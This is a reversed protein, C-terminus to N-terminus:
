TVASRAVLPYMSFRLPMARPILGCDSNVPDSSRARRYALSSSSSCQCRCPRGVAAMNRPFSVRTCGRAVSGFRLCYPMLPWGDRAAVLRLSRCAAYFAREVPIAAMM